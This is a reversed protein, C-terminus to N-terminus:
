TMIEIFRGIANGAPSPWQGTQRLLGSMALSHLPNIRILRQDSDPKIARGLRRAEGARGNSLDPAPEGAVLAVALNVFRKPPTLDIAGIAAQHDAELIQHLDLHRFGQQFFSKASM